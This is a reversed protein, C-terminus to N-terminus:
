QTCITPKKRWRCTGLLQYSVVNRCNCSRRGRVRNLDTLSINSQMQNIKGNRSHETLPDCNYVRFGNDLGIAFCGYDQNFGAYLLGPADHISHPVKSLNMKKNSCLCPFFFFFLSLSLFHFSFCFLIEINPFAMM